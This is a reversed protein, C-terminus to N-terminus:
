QEEFEEDVPVIVILRQVARRVRVNTNLNKYRVVVNRVRGDKSELIEDVVGLKWEGRVLNADQVLVVDNVNVNRRQTHWKPEIVLNPFVEQTWKKWFKNIIEQTFNLRQKANASESFPGQPPKNDCHGLLLDNPCLYTGDDPTLPKRGIPRQNVLQAAEDMVTQMEAFSCIKGAM